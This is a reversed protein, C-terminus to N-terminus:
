NNRRCRVCSSGETQSTDICLVGALVYEEAQTQCDTNVYLLTQRLSRHEIHLALGEAAAGCAPGHQVMPLATVETMDM